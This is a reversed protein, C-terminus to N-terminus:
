YAVAEPAIMKIDRLATLLLSRWHQPLLWIWFSVLVLAEEFDGTLKFVVLLPEIILQAFDRLRLRM